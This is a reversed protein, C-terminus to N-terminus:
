SDAKSEKRGVNLLTAQKASFVASEIARANSRGHGILVIGRVGVLLAAGYEEYNLLNKTSRLASKLFYSFLKNFFGKTMEKKLFHMILESIGESAKLMLNGVFGDCVIVDAEGRVMEKPEINGIFNLDKAEKLLKHAEKTLENGKEPEEGISLLGITPNEKNLAFSAYEAGLYAFQLLNDPKCDATAGADLLIVKGTKSPLYTAIAPRDIGERTKLILTAGAMMAGSNGASVIADAEGDRVLRMGVSISSDKKNRIATGPAECMDIVESTHHITINSPIPAPLINKITTEDGTLIINIGSDRKAAVLAGTVIDVPANDGGMADVVIIPKKNVM